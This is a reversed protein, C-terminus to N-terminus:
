FIPIRPDLGIPRDDDESAAVIPGSAGSVVNRSANEDAISMGIRGYDKNLSARKKLVQGNHEEDYISDAIILNDIMDMVQESDHESFLSRLDIGRNLLYHGNYYPWWKLFERGVGM